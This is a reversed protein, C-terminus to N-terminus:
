PQAYVTKSKHVFVRRILQHPKWRFEKALTSYMNHWLQMNRFYKESFWHKPDIFYQIDLKGLPITVSLGWADVYVSYM